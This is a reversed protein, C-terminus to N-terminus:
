AFLIHFLISLCIHLESRSNYVVSRLTRFAYSRKFIFLLTGRLYALPRIRYERYILSDLFYIRKRKDIDRVVHFWINDRVRVKAVIVRRRSRSRRKKRRKSSLRRGLARRRRRRRRQRNRALAWMRRCPVRLVCPGLWLSLSKRMCM